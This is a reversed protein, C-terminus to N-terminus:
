RGIAAIYANYLSLTYEFELPSMDNTLMFGGYRSNNRYFEITTAPVTGGGINEAIKAGNKYFAFNGDSVNGAYNAALNTITETIFGNGSNQYGFLQVQSSRILIGFVSSATLSKNLIDHVTLNAPTSTL